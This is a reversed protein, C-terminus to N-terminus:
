FRVPNDPDWFKQPDNEDIRRRIDKKVDNWNYATLMPIFYDYKFKQFYEKLLQDVEKDREGPNNM